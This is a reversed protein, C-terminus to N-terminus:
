EKVGMVKYMVANFHEKVDDVCFAAIVIFVVPQAALWLANFLPLQDPFYSEGVVLVVKVLM